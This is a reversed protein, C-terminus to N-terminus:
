DMDLVKKDAAWKRVQPWAEHLYVCEDFHDCSLSCWKKTMTNGSTSFLREPSASTDPIALMRRALLSLWPSIQVGRRWERLPDNSTNPLPLARSKWVEIERKAIKVSTLHLPTTLAAAATSVFDSTGDDTNYHADEAGKVEDIIKVCLEEVIVWAKDHEIPPIGFLGPVNRADLCCAAVQEQLFHLPSFSSSFHCGVSDFHLPDTM